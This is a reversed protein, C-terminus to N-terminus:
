RNWLTMSAAILFALPGFAMALLALGERLFLASGPVPDPANRGPKAFVHVAGAALMWCPIAILLGRTLAQVSGGVAVLPVVFLSLGAALAIVELASLGGARGGRAPGPLLLFLALGAVVLAFGLGRFPYLLSAPPTPRGTFGAGPQFDRRTWAHRDVQYHRDGGPQSISVFTTGGGAALKDLVASIPEEDARFFRPARPQGANIGALFSEWEPGTASFVNYQLLEEIYVSVPLQAQRRQADTKQGDPVSAAEEKQRAAFDVPIVTLLPDLPALRLLWFGPLICGVLLARRLLEM